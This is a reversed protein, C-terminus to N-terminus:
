FEHVAHILDKATQQEPSSSVLTMFYNVPVSPSLSCFHTNVLWFNVTHKRTGLLIEGHTGARLRFVTAPPTGALPQFKLRSCAYGNMM